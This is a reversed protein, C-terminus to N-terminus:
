DKKKNKSNMGLIIVLRRFIDILDIFLDVSHWIYDTDGSACKEVILQTDYLVFACMIALGLYLYVNFIATSQM